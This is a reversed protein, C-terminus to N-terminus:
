LLGASTASIRLFFLLSASLLLLLGSFYFRQMEEAFRQSKQPFIKKQSDRRNRRSFKRRRIEAIEAPFNEEAADAPLM